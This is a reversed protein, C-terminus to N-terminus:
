PKANVKNATAMLTSWEDIWGVVIKSIGAEALPTAMAPERVGADVWLQFGM